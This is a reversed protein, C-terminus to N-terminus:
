LAILDTLLSMITILPRESRRAVYAVQSLIIKVIKVTHISGPGFTIKVYQTRVGGTIEARGQAIPLGYSGFFGTAVGAVARKGVAVM